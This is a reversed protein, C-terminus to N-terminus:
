FCMHKEIFKAFNEFVGIKYFMQARISRFAKSLVLYPLVKNFFFTLVLENETKSHQKCNLSLNRWWQHILTPRPRSPCWGLSREFFFTKCTIKGKKWDDTKSNREWSVYYTFSNYLQGKWEIEKKGKKLYNANNM